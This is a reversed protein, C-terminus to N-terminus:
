LDKVLEIIEGDILKIKFDCEGLCEACVGDVMLMEFHFIFITIIGHIM